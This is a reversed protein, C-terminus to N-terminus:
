RMLMQIEMLITPTSDMNIEMLKLTKKRQKSSNINVSVNPRNSFYFSAAVDPKFYIYVQM